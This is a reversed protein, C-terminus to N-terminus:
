KEYKGGIFNLIDQYVEEKSLGNLLEHRSNPYLKTCIKQYGLKNLFNKLHEFKNENQIVPDKEGAIMFIELNKNKVQFTKKKYAEKMLKYLNLFGNNTFVYGCLEDQNYEIVAKEDSCVWSNELKKGQNYSGFTLKQLFNSRYHEGKIVCMSKAVLIGIDVLNNKTPPGCLILKEIEQDYKKIYCRSVLTGMSHSFLFVPLGPYQEKIYQIVQHLDEVIFSSDTTYFFGLDEKTKVSKGHGRHDHIVTIYGHSALYEMFQFYREKHETMGHSIIVIGTPEKNPISIAMELNLYDRKSQIKEIKM